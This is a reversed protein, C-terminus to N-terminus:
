IKQPCSIKLNQNYRSNNRINKDYGRYNVTKPSLLKINKLITQCESKSLVNSIEFLSKKNASHKKVIKPTINKSIELDVM